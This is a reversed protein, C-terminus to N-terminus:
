ICNKKKGKNLTYKFSLSKRIEPPVDMKVTDGVNFRYFPEYTQPIYLTPTTFYAKLMQLQSKFIVAHHNNIVNVVTELHNKWQSLPL